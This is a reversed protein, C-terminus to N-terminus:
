KTKFPKFVQSTGANLWEPNSTYGVAGTTLSQVAHAPYGETSLFHYYDAQRQQQNPKSRTNSPEAAVDQNNQFSPLRSLGALLSM